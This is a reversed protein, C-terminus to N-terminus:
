RSPQRQLDYGRDRLCNGRQFDTFLLVAGVVAVAVAVGPEAVLAHWRSAAECLPLAEVLAAREGAGASFEGPVDAGIRLILPVVSLDPVYRNKEEV